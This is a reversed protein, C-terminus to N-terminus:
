IHNKGNANGDVKPCLRCHHIQATPTIASIVIMVCYYGLRTARSAVDKVCLVTQVDGARPYYLRQSRSPLTLTSINVNLPQTYFAVKFFFLPQCLMIFNQQSQQSSCIMPHLIKPANTQTKRYFFFQIHPIVQLPCVIWLM